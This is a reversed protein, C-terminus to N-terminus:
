VGLNRRLVEVSKIIRDTRYLNPHKEAETYDTPEHTQSNVVWSAYPRREGLHSGVSKPNVGLVGAVAGYTCRTEVQNLYDLIAKVKDEM